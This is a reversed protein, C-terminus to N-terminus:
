GLLKIHANIWDLIKPFRFDGAAISDTMFAYTEVPEAELTFGNMLLFTHAADFAVRKNGDIFAHNNVLSDMLAAAEEAINNYYGTQPRFTASELLSQERIGHSGGYAEISRHHIAIIEAVTLYIREAM